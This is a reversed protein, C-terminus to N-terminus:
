WRLVLNQSHLWWLLILHAPYFIYFFYKIQWGREGNYFHIPLFALLAVIELVNGFVVLVLFACLIRYIEKERFIYFGVILVVGAGSYDTHFLEAALVVGCALVRGIWPNSQFYELVFIAILGLTLTFFVNQSNWNLWSGNFALDFPIESIIAFLFLRVGYKIRNSTHVYGEVLLFCFIPFALRGIGRLCTYPVISHFYTIIKYGFVAACHDILMTAMALWKLGAGSIGRTKVTNDM